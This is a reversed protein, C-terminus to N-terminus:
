EGVKLHQWEKENVSVTPRQVTRAGLFDKPHGLAEKANQTTSFTGLYEGSKTTAGFKRLDGQHRVSVEGKRSKAVVTLHPLQKYAADHERTTPGGGSTFQNGHFEHGPVDGLERLGLYHDIVERNGGEIAEQLIAELAKFEAAKLGPPVKKTVQGQTPAAIPQGDAGIPPPQNVSIREPAGIPVKEEDSLPEWGYCTKRIEDDTFVTLGQTKNTTAMKLALEAKYAEQDSEETPEMSYWHDRIEEDTFVTFGAAANTDAWLKAGAAREQETLTQIHPFRVLYADPGKTPPRLYGYEILRSALKRVMGPGAHQQQRGDIQDKWNDRDQSSALEGMESGTLIRKPIGKTGAIQTLIADANNQFNAVDSGLMNVDVGRTRFTRGSLGHRWEEIQERLTEVTATAEPLAMDKNVDLHLGQNARLWFAESGGGTIKDLDDLLNWCAELTPIGYVNDELCGEAIHIIRSWHVPVQFDPSTLDVRRLRYYEAEGFRADKADTVFSQIVADNDLSPTVAGGRLSSPGGGGSFPQLFLIDKPGTGRPLPTSLDGPGKAGILIISYTSLGALIDARRLMSTVSLRVELDKWDQELPSDHKTDEDEVVEVTGRWTANPFAEVIRKAIGGRAYRDRYQQTTIARDYGLAEYTDRAGKFTIGAQRMFAIREMLVSAAARIQTMEAAYDTIIEENAM